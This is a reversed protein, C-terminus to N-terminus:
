AIAATLGDATCAAYLAVLVTGIMATSRSDSGTALPQAVLRHCGPPFTSADKEIQWLKTRLTQLHQPPGHGLEGFEAHQPVRRGAGDRQLRELYDSAREAKFHSHLLNPTRTIKFTGEACDSRCLPSAQQHQRRREERAIQLEESIEAERM